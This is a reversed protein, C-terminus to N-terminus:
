PLARTPGSSRELGLFVLTYSRSFVYQQRRIVPNDEYYYIDGSIKGSRARYVHLERVGIAMTPRRFIVSLGSPNRKPIGNGWARPLGSRNLQRAIEFRIVGNVHTPRSGGPHRRPTNSVALTTDNRSRATITETYNRTYVRPLIEFVTCPGSVFGVRKLFDGPVSRPPPRTPSSTFDDYLRIEYM